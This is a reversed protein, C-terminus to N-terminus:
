MQNNPLHSPDGYDNTKTFTKNSIFTSYNLEIILFILIRNLEYKIRTAYFIKIGPM